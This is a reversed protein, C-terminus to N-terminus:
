TDMLADVSPEYDSNLVAHSNNSREKILHYATKNAINMIKTNNFDNEEIELKRKLSCFLELVIGSHSFTRSTYKPM